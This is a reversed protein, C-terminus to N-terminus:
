EIFHVNMICNKSYNNDWEGFTTRPLRNFFRLERLGTGNFRPPSLVDGNVVVLRVADWDKLQKATFMLERLGTVIIDGLAEEKTIEQSSGESEPTMILSVRFAREAESRKLKGEAYAERLQRGHTSSVHPTGAFRGQGLEEKAHTQEVGSLKLANRGWVNVNIVYVDPCKAVAGSTPPIAPTRDRIKIPTEKEAVPSKQAEVVNECFGALIYEGTNVDSWADEGKFFARHWGLHDYTRKEGRVLIRSMFWEGSPAPQKVLSRLYRPLEAINDLKASPHALRIGHYYDHATACSGDRKCRAADLLSHGTADRQLAKDVLAALDTPTNLGKMMPMGTGAANALAAIALALVVVISKM